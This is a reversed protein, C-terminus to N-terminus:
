SGSDAPDDVVADDFRIDDVTVHVTRVGPVDGVADAIRSGLEPLSPGYRVVVNLELHGCDLRVGVVSRGGPLYSRFQDVPGSSMAAVGDVALVATAIAAVASESAPDTM